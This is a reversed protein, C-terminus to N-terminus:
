HNILAKEKVGKKAVSDGHCVCVCYGPVLGPFQKFGVIFVGEVDLVGKGHLPHHAPVGTVQAVPRLFIEPTDHPQEVINITLFEGVLMTDLGRFQQPLAANALINDM